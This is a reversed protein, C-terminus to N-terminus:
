MDNAELLTYIFVIIQFFQNKGSSKYSKALMQLTNCLNAAADMDDRVCIIIIM